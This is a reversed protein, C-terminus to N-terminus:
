TCSLKQILKQSTDASSIKKGIYLSINNIINHPILNDSFLTKLDPKQEFNLYIYNNYENEGFENILYTKGVQRAGQLLLPKRKDSNKWLLLKNYLTRKM